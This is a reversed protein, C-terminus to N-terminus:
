FQYSICYLAMFRSSNEANGYGPAYQPVNTYDSCKLRKRYRLSWGMHLGGWVKADVGFVLETWHVKCKETTLTRGSGATDALFAAPTANDESANDGDDPTAPTDAIPAETDFDFSTFGYRLGLVLRYDARKDRLVNYDCGIRVFPAKAKYRVDTDVDYKDAKGYGIEVVPFYTGNLNAQAFAQFDGNDAFQYMLPGVIDVGFALHRLFAMSEKKEVAKRVVNTVNKDEGPTMDLCSVECQQVADSLDNGSHTMETATRGDDTTFSIAYCMIQSLALFSFLVAKKM